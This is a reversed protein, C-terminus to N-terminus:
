RKALWIPRGALGTLADVVNDRYSGAFFQRPEIVGIATVRDTPRLVARVMAVRARDRARLPVGLADLEAVATTREGSEPAVATIHLAGDVLVRRDGEILWFPVAESRRLIVKDDFLYTTTIAVADAPGAIRREHGAVAATFPEGVPPEPLAIAPVRSTRRLKTRWFQKGYGFAAVGLPALLWTGNELLMPLLLAGTTAIATTWLALKDRWGTPPPKGVATVGTIVKRALARPEVLPAAGCEICAGGDPQLLRCRACCKV